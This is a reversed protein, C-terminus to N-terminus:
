EENIADKLARSPKCKISKVAPFTTVVGTQPNRGEREPRESIEFTVFNSLIVREGSILGEKIEDIFTDIIEECKMRPIDIQKVINKIIENKTM